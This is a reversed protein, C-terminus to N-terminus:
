RGIGRLSGPAERPHHHSCANKSITPDAEAPPGRSSARFGRQGDSSETKDGAYRGQARGRIGAFGEEELLRCLAVPLGKLADALCCGLPVGLGLGVETDKIRVTVTHWLVIRLGERPVPLGGRLAIGRCSM